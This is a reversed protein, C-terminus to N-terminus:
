TRLFAAVGAVIADAYGQRGEASEMVAAERADRMNGCEVMAVPIDSLNLTALDGRVDLGNAGTYTAPPRGAAVLADRLDIALARSEVYVDDTWGKLRTPAIVHFGRGDWSGDAHISVKLDAGRANGAHGREDVCPGWLEASDTSRTLIVRAGLRRLGAAARRTVDFNFSAEPYGDNTATGTTNCYKEFGGAEVPTNIEEPFNSNGLQHGADLVVVRGALPSVAPAATPAVPHGGPADAQGALLGAGTALLAALAVARLRIM